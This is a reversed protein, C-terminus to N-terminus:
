SESRKHVDQLLVDIMLGQNISLVSGVKFPSSEFGKGDASLTLMKFAIVDGVKPASTLPECKEFNMLKKSDTEDHNLGNKNAVCHGNNLINTDEDELSTQFDLLYDNRIVNANANVKRSANPFTKRASQKKVSKQNTQKLEIFQIFQNM